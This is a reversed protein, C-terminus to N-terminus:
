ELAYFAHTDGIPHYICAILDFEHPRVIMSMRCRGTEGLYISEFLSGFFVLHTICAILDYDHRCDNSDSVQIVLYIIEFFLGWFSLLGHHEPHELPASRGTTRTSELSLFLLCRFLFLTFKVFSNTVHPQVDQTPTMVICIDVHRKM